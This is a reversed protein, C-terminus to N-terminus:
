PFPWTQIGQAVFCLHSSEVSYELLCIADFTSQTFGCNPHSHLPLCRHLIPNSKPLGESSIFNINTKLKYFLRSKTKTLDNPMSKQQYTDLFTENVWFTLTRQLRCSQYYYDLWGTSVKIEHFTHIKLIKKWNKWVYPTM